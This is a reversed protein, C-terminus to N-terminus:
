NQDNLELLPNKNLIIKHQLNKKKKKKFNPVFDKM